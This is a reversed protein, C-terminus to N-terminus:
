DLRRTIFDPLWRIEPRLCKQVVFICLHPNICPAMIADSILIALSEKAPRTPFKHQRSASGSRDPM